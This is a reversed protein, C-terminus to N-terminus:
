RCNFVCIERTPYAQDNIRCWWCVKRVKCPATFCPLFVKEGLDEQGEDHLASIDVFVILLVFLIISLKTPAM